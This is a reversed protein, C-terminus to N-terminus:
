AKAPRHSKGAAGPKGTVTAKGGGTSGVLVPGNLPREEGFASAGTINNIADITKTHKHDHVLPLDRVDPNEPGRSGTVSGGKKKYSKNGLQM